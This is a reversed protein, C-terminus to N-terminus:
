KVQMLSNVEITDTNFRGGNLIQTPYSTLFQSSKKAQFMVDVATDDFVNPQAKAPYDVFDFARTNINM